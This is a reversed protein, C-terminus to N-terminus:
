NNENWDRKIRELAEQEEVTWLHLRMIRVYIFLNNNIDLYSNM